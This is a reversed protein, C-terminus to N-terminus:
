PRTKRYSHAYQMIADTARQYGGAEQIAQQMAQVRARFASNQAIQAVAERLGEVSLTAKDLIIGLELEQARHAAAEQRTQPIIVMPIGFFLSEMVSNLGGHSIFIDTCPLIELQPVQPAAVFNSPIAPLTALDIKTGYSLVVQWETDGFAEFCLRYFDLQNNFNTGLSIYLTPRITDLKEFPFSHSAYRRSQLSPGVFLFREDFTEEAPRFARPHFVLTLPEASGYLSRIESPQIGYAASLSSLENDQLARLNSLSPSKQALQKYLNARFQENRSQENATGPIAYTPCLGVTPIYLIRAVLRPWLFMCEAVICDGQEERVSEVLSPVVQPSKKLM